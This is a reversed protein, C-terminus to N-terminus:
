VDGGEEADDHVKYLTTEFGVTLKSPIMQVIGVMQAALNLWGGTWFSRADLGWTCITREGHAAVIFSMPPRLSHLIMTNDRLVESGETTRDISYM